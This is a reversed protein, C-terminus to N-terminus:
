ITPISFISNWIMYYNWPIPKDNNRHTLKKKNAYIKSNFFIPSSLEEGNYNVDKNM